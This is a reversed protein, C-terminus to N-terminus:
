KCYTKIIFDVLDKASKNNIYNKQNEIIKKQLDKDNLLLHLNYIIEEKSDCKISMNREQFFNTNYTEIGPIPFIHLLPKHISAIETSSLGGPKSLVIDSTYILDNINNTFGLPILKDNNITKLDELLKKNSGCVVLVKINDEKLIDDLIDKINGFGMSGLMVLIVKENKINYDKKINKAENIFRSSVPIGTPLLISPIIGKKKFKEELGKQIVMYDPKTEEFFPCPEYDTAVAIFNVKRNDQKNIATLTLAPFLHTAIVLDIKNEKIYNYMSNCHLKNVLYVPSKIRTKSYLEGLKYVSKFIEGNGGLTSLYLKSSLEKANINVIDYFDKFICEINNAKLEEEIYHACSNHGGGTSCSLLLVKM